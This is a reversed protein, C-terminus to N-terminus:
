SNINQADYYIHSPHIHFGNLFVDARLAPSFHAIVHVWPAVLFLPVAFMAVHISGSTIKQHM